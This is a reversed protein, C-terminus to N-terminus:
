RHKPVSLRRQGGSARDQRNNRRTRVSSQGFYLGYYGGGYEVCAIFQMGLTVETHGKPRTMSEKSRLHLPPPFPQSRRKLRHRLSLRRPMRIPSSGDLLVGYAPLSPPIRRSSSPRSMGVNCLRGGRVKSN